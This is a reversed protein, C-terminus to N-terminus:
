STRVWTHEWQLAIEPRHCQVTTTSDKVVHYFGKDRMALVEAPETGAGGTEELPKQSQHEEIGACGESQHPLM